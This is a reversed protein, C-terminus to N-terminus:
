VSRRERLDISLPGPGITMILLLGGMLSLNHLFFLMNAHQEKPDTYTWWTHFTLTVPILFLFLLLAGLRTKYGLLLSLGGVLETLMAAIHFFPIWFMGRGAMQAETGSWNLIKMVGSLLFIQSILIRAALTGYRELAEIRGAGGMFARLASTGAWPADASSAGRPEIRGTGHGAIPRGWSSSM